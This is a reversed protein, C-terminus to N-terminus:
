AAAAKAVERGLSWQDRFMREWSPHDKLAPHRLGEGFFQLADAVSGIRLSLEGCLYLVRLEEKKELEAERYGTTYAELAQALAAQEAARDGRERACWALRHLIAAIRLPAAGRMRYMALALHLAKERLDLSRECNFEPRQGGWGRVVEQVTEAVRDMHRQSLDAFDAPFATYLDNPCVWLEYDYPNLPTRYSQHFDTSREGPM